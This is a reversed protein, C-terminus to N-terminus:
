TCGEHPASRASVLRGDGAASPPRGRPRGRGRDEPDADRGAPARDEELYVGAAARRRCTEGGYDEAGFSRRPPPSREDGGPRGAPGGARGYRASAAVLRGGGRDREATAAMASELRKLDALASALAARYRDEQIELVRLLRRMARSVAM